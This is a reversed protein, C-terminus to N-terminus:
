FAKQFIIGNRIRAYLSAKEDDSIRVYKIYAGTEEGTGRAPIRPMKM